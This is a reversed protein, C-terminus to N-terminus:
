GIIKLPSLLFCHGSVNWDQECNVTLVDYNYALTEQQKFDGSSYSKCGCAIKRASTKSLWIWCARRLSRLVCLTHYQADCIGQCGSVLDFTHGFFFIRGWLGVLCEPLHTWLLLFQQPKAVAMHLLSQHFDRVTRVEMWSRTTAVLAIADFDLDVHM